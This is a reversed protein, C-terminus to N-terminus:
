FNAMKDGTKNTFQGVAFSASCVKYSQQFIYLYLRVRPTYAQMPILPHWIWKPNLYIITHYM